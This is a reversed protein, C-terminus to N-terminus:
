RFIEKKISICGQGAPMLQLSVTASLASQQINRLIPRTAPFNAFNQTKVVSCAIGWYITQEYFGSCSESPVVTITAYRTTGLSAHASEVTVSVPSSDPVTGLSRVVFAANSNETVFAAVARVIPACRKVGARALQAGLRDMPSQPVAQPTTVQAQALSIALSSAVLAALAALSITLRM